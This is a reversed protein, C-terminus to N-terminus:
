VGKNQEWWAVFDVERPTGEALLPIVHTVFHQSLTGKANVGICFIACQTLLEHRM